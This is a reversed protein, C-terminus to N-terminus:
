LVTAPRILILFNDLPVYVIAHSASLIAASSRSDGRYM